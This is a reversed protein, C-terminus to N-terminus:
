STKTPARPKGLFWQALTKLTAPDKTRLDYLKSPRVVLTHGESYAEIVRAHQPGVLSLVMVLVVMHEVFRGRKLHALMLRLILLMEGQLLHGDDANLNNYITAKLHAYPGDKVQQIDYLGFEPFNHRWLVKEQYIPSVESGLPKDGERYHSIYKDWYIDIAQTCTKPDRGDESISEHALYEVEYEQDYQNDPTLLCSRDLPTFFAPRDKSSENLVMPLYRIQDIEASGSGIEFQHVPELVKIHKELRRLAKRMEKREPCQSPVSVASATSM